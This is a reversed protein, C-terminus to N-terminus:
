DPRFTAALDSRPLIKWDGAPFGPQVRFRVQIRDPGLDLGSIRNAGFMVVLMQRSFDVRPMPPPWAQDRWLRTLEENSYIVAGPSPAETSLPRGPDPNRTPAPGAAARLNPTRGSVPAPVPRATLRRSEAATPEPDLAPPLLRTIGLQAKQKELLRNLDENSYAPPDAPLEGFASGPALRPSLRDPPPPPEPDPAPAPGATRAQLLYGALLLAAGCSALAAIKATANM